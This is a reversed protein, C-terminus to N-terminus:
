SWFLCSFNGRRKCETFIYKWRKLLLDSTFKNNTCFAPVSDSLSQAMYVFAYKAVDGTKFSSEMSQFSTAMFSSSIPLGEEDYPLM